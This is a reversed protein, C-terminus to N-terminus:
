EEEATYYQHDRICYAYLIQDHGYVVLMVQQCNPCEANEVETRRWKPPVVETTGKKHVKFTLKKIEM